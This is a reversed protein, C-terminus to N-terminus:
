KLLWGLWSRGGGAYAHWFVLLAIGLLGNLLADSVSIRSWLLVLPSLGFALAASIATIGQQSLAPWRDVGLPQPWRLLTAALAAWRINM